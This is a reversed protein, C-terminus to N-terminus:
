KTIRYEKNSIRFEIRSNQNRGGARMPPITLIPRLRTSEALLRNFPSFFAQNERFLRKFINRMKHLWHRAQRDKHAHNRELTKNWIDAHRRFDSVMFDQLFSPINGGHCISSHFPEILLFAIAENLLFVPLIDKDMVRGDVPGAELRELFAILHCKLYLLAFFARRCYVDRYDLAEPGRLSTQIAPTPRGKGGFGLLHEELKQRRRGGIRGQLLAAASPVASRAFGSVGNEPCAGIFGPFHHFPYKNSM